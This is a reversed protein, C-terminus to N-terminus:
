PSQLDYPCSIFPKSFEKNLQNRNQNKIDIFYEQMKNFIRM